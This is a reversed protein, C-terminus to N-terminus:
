RGIPIGFTFGQQAITTKPALYVPPTNTHLSIKGAAKWKNAKTTKSIGTILMATGGLFVIFGAVSGAVGDNPNVSTSGFASALSSGFAKQGQTIFLAAGRAMAIGGVIMLTNGTKKMSAYTTPQNVLTDVPEQQAFLYFPLILMAFLSSLNGTMFFLKHCKSYFIGYLHDGMQAIVLLSNVM